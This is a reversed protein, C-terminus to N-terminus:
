VIPESAIAEVRLSQIEVASKLLHHIPCKNAIEFLRAKQEESLEGTFSIERSIVTREPSESLIKVTVDTSTLPWSKRNAYMQVTIITCAALSAELLRHPDPADDIGGQERSLGSIIEFNGARISAGLNERRHGTVM